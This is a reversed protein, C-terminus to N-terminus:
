PLIAKRERVRRSVEGNVGGENIKGEKGLDITRTFQSINFSASDYVNGKSLAKHPEGDWSGRPRGNLIRRADREALDRLDKL